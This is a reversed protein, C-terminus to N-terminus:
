STRRQSFIRTSTRYQAMNVGSLIPQGTGVKHQPTSSRSTSNRTQHRARLVPHVRVRVGTANTRAPEYPPRANANEVVVLYACNAVQRAQIYCLTPQYYLDRTLRRRVQHGKYKEHNRWLEPFSRFFRLWAYLVSCELRLLNDYMHHLYMGANSVM